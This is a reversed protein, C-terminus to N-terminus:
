LQLPNDKTEFWIFTIEFCYPCIVKIFFNNRYKDWITFIEKSPIKIWTDKVVM